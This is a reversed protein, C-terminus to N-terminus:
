HVWGRKLASPAIETHQSQCSKKDPVAGLLKSAGIDCLDQSMASIKYSAGARSGGATAGFYTTIDGRPIHNESM